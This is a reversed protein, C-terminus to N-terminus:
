LALEQPQVFHVVIECVHVVGCIGARREVVALALVAQVVRRAVGDGHAEGFRLGREDPQLGARACWNSRRHGRCRIQSREPVPAGAARMRRKTAWHAVAPM